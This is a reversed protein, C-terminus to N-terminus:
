TTSHSYNYFLIIQNIPREKEPGLASPPPPNPNPFKTDLFNENTLLHSQRNELFWIGKPM